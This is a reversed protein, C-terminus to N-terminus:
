SPLRASCMAAPPCQVCGCHPSTNPSVSGVMSYWSHPLCLHVARGDWLQCELEEKTGAASPWRGATSARILPPASGVTCSLHASPLAHSRRGSFSGGLLGLNAAVPPQTQQGFVQQGSAPWKSVLCRCAWDLESCPVRVPPSVCWQVLGLTHACCGDASVQLLRRAPPLRCRPLASWVHQLREWSVTSNLLGCAFAANKCRIQLQTSRETGGRCDLLPRFGVRQASLGPATSPWRVIARM